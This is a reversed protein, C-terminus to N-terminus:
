LLHTASTLQPPSFVNSGEGTLTGLSGAHASLSSAGPCISAGCLSEGTVPTLWLLLLLLLPLLSSNAWGMREGLSWFSFFQTKCSFSPSVRSGSCGCMVSWPSLTM